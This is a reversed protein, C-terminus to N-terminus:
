ETADTSVASVLNLTGLPHLPYRVALESLANASAQADGGVSAKIVKAVACSSRAKPQGMAQKMYADGAAADGAVYMLSAAECYSWATGAARHIQGQAIEAADAKVKGLAGGDGRRLADFGFAAWAGASNPRDKVVNDLFVEVKKPDSSERAMAAGVLFGGTGVAGRLTRIRELNADILRESGVKSASVGHVLHGLTTGRAGVNLAELAAGRSRSAQGRQLRSIALAMPVQEDLDMHEKHLKEVRKHSGKALYAMAEYGRAKHCSHSQAKTVAGAPLDDDGRNVAIRIEVDQDAWPEYLESSRKAADLAKDTEGMRMAKVAFDEFYSCDEGAKAQAQDYLEFAEDYRGHKWLVDAYDALRKAEKKDTADGSSGSASEGGEEGEEVREIPAEIACEVPELSQAAAGFARVGDLTQFSNDVVRVPDCSLPTEVSAFRMSQTPVLLSASKDGAKDFSEKADEIFKDGPDVWSPKEVRKLAVRGTAGDVAIALDAYDWAALHIFNPADTMGLSRSSEGSWLEVSLPVAEGAGEDLGTIALPAVARQAGGIQAVHVSDPASLDTLSPLADNVLLVKVPQGGFEGDLALDVGMTAFLQGEDFAVVSKMVTAPVIEGVKALTKDGMESKAFAFRGLDTLQAVALESLTPVSIANIPNIECHWDKLIVQGNDGKLRVEPIVAVKRTVKVTRSLPGKRKYKGLTMEEIEGGLAKAVGETCTNGGSLMRVHLLFEDPEDKDPGQALVAPRSDTDIGRLLPVEGDGEIEVSGVGEEFFRAPDDAAQASSVFLGALALSTALSLMRM